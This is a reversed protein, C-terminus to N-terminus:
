RIPRSRRRSRRPPTCRCAAASFSISAAIVWSSSFSRTARSASFCTTSSAITPTPEPEVTNLNMSASAVMLPRISPATAAESAAVAGEIKHKMSSLADIFKFVTSGSGVGIIADEVVHKLAERAVLEKLQDQNM